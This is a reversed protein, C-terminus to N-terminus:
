GLRINLQRVLDGFHQAEKSIHQKLQALTLDVVEVGHFSRTELTDTILLIEPLTSSM